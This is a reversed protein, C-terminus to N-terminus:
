PAIEADPARCIYVTVSTGAPVRTRPAPSQNVVLNTDWARCDSVDVLDVTLGVTEATFALNDGVPDAPTGILDPVRVSADARSMVVLGAVVVGIALAVSVVLVRSPRRRRTRERSEPTGADLDAEEV